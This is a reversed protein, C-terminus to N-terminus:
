SRISLCQPRGDRCAERLERRREGNMDVPITVVARDFRNKTTRAVRDQRAHEMVHAVVDGVVVQPSYTHGDVTVSNRGLMTKPSRVISGVVGSTANALEEKARRGVIARGGRYSVVSPHPYGEDLIPTCREGEIRDSTVISMVSNTTGFDFGVTEM